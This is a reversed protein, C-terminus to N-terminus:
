KAREKFGQALMPLKYITKANQETSEKGSADVAGGGVIFLMKKDPGSFAVSTVPRPSPIVGLLKGQSSMVQVGVRSSVYVRGEADVAMGDGAAGQGQFKDSVHRNESDRGDPLLEICVMHDGDTVYLTKEDPSLAIGNARIGDGFFFMKGDPALYYVGSSPVRRSEDFYLGGRKEVVLDSAGKLPVGYYNDTIIKREPTLMSVSPRQRSPQDRMVALIHGQYDIALAGPGGPAEVVVSSKGDPDVKRVRGVEAQAFIVGGDPTGVIGDANDTGWWFIKWKVGADVVGPIAIVTVAREGLRAQAGRAPAQGPPAQSLAPMSILLWAALAFGTKWKM